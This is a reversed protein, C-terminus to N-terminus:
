SLGEHGGRAARRSCLRPGPDAERSPRAVSPTRLLELLSASPVHVPEQAPEHLFLLLFGANAALAASVGFPVQWSYRATLWETVAPALANMILNTVGFIGITQGVRGPPALDAALTLGAVFVAAFAVGQARRRAILFGDASDVAVFGLSTLSLAVAGFLMVPRRGTRDTGVGVLPVLIVASIGFVGMLFGVESAELGLEQTLYKPLLSFTSFAYGFSAQITLLLLFTRSLAVTRDHM